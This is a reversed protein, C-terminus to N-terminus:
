RTSAVRNRPRVDCNKLCRSITEPWVTSDFSAFRANERQAAWGTAHRMTRGCSNL